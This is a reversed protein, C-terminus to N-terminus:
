SYISESLQPHVAVQLSTIYYKKHWVLYDHVYGHLSAFAYHAIFFANPMTPALSLMVRCENCM